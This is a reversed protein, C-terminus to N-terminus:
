SMRGTPASPRSFRRSTRWCAGRRGSSTARSSRWGTTNHPSVRPMAPSPPSPPRPSAALAKVGLPADAIEGVDDGRIGHEPGFLAVLNVADSEHMLDALHRGDVLASHNTVLGVNKGALMSFGDAVLRDAGTVMEAPPAAPAPPDVAEPGCGVVCAAMMMYLIYRM